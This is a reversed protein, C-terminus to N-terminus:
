EIRIVVLSSLEFCSTKLKSLSEVKGRFSHISLMKKNGKEMRMVALSSLEYSSFTFLFKKVSTFGLTKLKSLSKVKIQLFFHEKVGGGGQKKPTNYWTNGRGSHFSTKM